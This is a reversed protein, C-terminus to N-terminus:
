HAKNLILPVLHEIYEDIVLNKQEIFKAANSGYQLRKIDDKLLNILEIGLEYNNAVQVIANADLLEKMEQKFNDTHPGVLICKGFSAPELINHGGREVLSGGVFVLAAENYYIELEGLTDVIYIDTNISVSGSNSRMAVSYGNRTFEKSLEVGRNPYRPAIVLLFNHKKLLELHEVLQKEEDDHTSVALVFPRKLVTSPLNSSGSVTIAYKLNGVNHTTGSEAGLVIYNKRDEESRTLLISLNKLARNYEKKILKNAHLTKSSLRGNIIAIPINKSATQYYFTPWIETELILICVPQLKKLFSNVSIKYDIPLYFHVIRPHQWKNVLTAATPTNTSIIFNQHAFKKALSLVLPKAANVEGVSACHIIIPDHKYYIYNFGLRQTFYRWGGDKISRYLLYALAVPSLLFLLIKYISSAPHPPESM